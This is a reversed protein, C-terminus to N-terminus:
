ADPRAHGPREGLESRTEARDPRRTATVSSSIRRPLSDPRLPGRRPGSPRRRPGARSSGRLSPSEISLRNHEKLVPRTELVDTLIAPELLNAGAAAVRHDGSTLLLAAVRSSRFTTRLVQRAPPSPRAREGFTCIPSLWVPQLDGFRSASTRRPALVRRPRCDFRMLRRIGSECTSDNAPQRRRRLRIESRRLEDWHEFM